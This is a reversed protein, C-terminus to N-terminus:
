FTDLTYFLISNKKNNRENHKDFVSKLTNLKKIKM